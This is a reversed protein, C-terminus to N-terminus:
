GRTMLSVFKKFERCKEQHYLSLEKLFVLYEKSQKIWEFSYAVRINDVLVSISKKGKSKVGKFVGVQAAPGVFIIEKTKKTLQNVALRVGGSGDYYDDFMMLGNFCLKPYIFQICELTPEYLDCDIHAFCFKSSKDFSKFTDSFWGKKVICYKELGLNRINKKLRNMSSLFEGKEYAKDYKRNPAPLGQFSDCIYIKKNSSRSKLVYGIMLSIGGNCSGFEIYNGPLEIAQVVANYIREARFRDLLSLHKIQSWIKEFPKNSFETYGSRKLLGLVLKDDYSEPQCMKRGFELLQM